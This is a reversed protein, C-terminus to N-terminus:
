RQAEEIEQPKVDLVRAEALLVHKYGFARAAAFEDRSEHITKRWYLPKLAKVGATRSNSALVLMKDTRFVGGETNKHDVEVDYIRTIIAM